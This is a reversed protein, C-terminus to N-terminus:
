PRHEMIKNFQPILSIVSLKQRIFNNEKEPTNLKGPM